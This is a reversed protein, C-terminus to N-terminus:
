KVTTTNGKDSSKRETIQKSLEDVDAKRQLSGPYKPSLRQLYDKASNLHVRARDVDHLRVLYQRGIRHHVRSLGEYVEDIPVLLLADKSISSLTSEAEKLSRRRVFVVALDFRATCHDLAFERDIQLSKTNPTVPPIDTILVAQRSLGLSVEDFLEKSFRKKIPERLLKYWQKKDQLSLTQRDADMAQLLDEVRLAPKCSALVQPSREALQLLASQLKFRLRGADKLPSNKSLMELAKQLLHFTELDAANDMWQLTQRDTASELLHLTQKNKKSPEARSFVANSWYDWLDCLRSSDSDCGSLNVLIDLAGPFDGIECRHRCQTELHRFSTDMAKRVSPPMARKQYEASLENVESALSSWAKLVILDYLLTAALNAGDECYAPLLDKLVKASKRASQGSEEVMGKDHQWASRRKWYRMALLPDRLRDRLVTSEVETLLKAADDLKKSQRLTECLLLKVDLSAQDSTVGAPCMALAQRYLNEANSLEGKNLARSAQRSVDLWSAATVPEILIGAFVLLLGVVLIPYSM